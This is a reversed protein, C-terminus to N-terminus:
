YRFGALGFWFFGLGNELGCPRLMILSHFAVVVVFFLSCHNHSRYEYLKTDKKMGGRHKFPENTNKRVNNVTCTRKGPRRVDMWLGYSWAGYIGLQGPNSETRRM